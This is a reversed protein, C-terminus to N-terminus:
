QLLSKVKKYLQQNMSSLDQLAHSQLAYSDPYILLQGYVKIPTNIPLPTEGLITISGTGDDLIFREADKSVILGTLSIKKTEPTISAISLEQYPPHVFAM